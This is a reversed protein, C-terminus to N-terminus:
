AALGKPLEDGELLVKYIHRSAVHYVIIGEPKMFEPAAVSGNKRLANITSEVAADSFVGTYLTPVVHCCTPAAEDWRTTNFLSFRKVKQNYGRQIGPGWWEGFHTGEGLGEVLEEQNAVVWAAFGFNDAGPKIFRSRSQAYILYDGVRGVANEDTEVEAVPVIRVAANTGDLKETIICDRRLRPIKPFEEFELTM